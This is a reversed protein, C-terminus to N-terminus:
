LFRIRLEGSKVRSKFFIASFCKKSLFIFIAPRIKKAGYINTYLEANKLKITQFKALNNIKGPSASDIEAQTSPSM